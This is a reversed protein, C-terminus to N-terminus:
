PPITGEAKAKARAARTPRARKGDVNAGSREAGGGAASQQKHTEDLLLRQQQLSKGQERTKEAIWGSFNGSQAAGHANIAGPTAVDLGTFDPARPDGRHYLQLARALTGKRM